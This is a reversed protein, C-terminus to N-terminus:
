LEAFLTAKEIVTGIYFLQGHNHSPLFWLGLEQLVLAPSSMLGLCNWDM